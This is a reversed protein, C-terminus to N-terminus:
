HKWATLGGPGNWKQDKDGNESDDSEGTGSKAVYGASGQSKGTTNGAM